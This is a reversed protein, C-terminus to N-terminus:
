KKPSKILPAEKLNPNFTLKKWNQMQKQWTGPTMVLMCLLPKFNWSSPKPVLWMILEYKFGVHPSAQSSLNETFVKGGKRLVRKQSLYDQYDKPTRAKTPDSRKYKMGRHARAKDIGSLKDATGQGRSVQLFLLELEGLKNLAKLTFAPILTISHTHQM